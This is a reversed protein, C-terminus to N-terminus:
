EFGDEVSVLGFHNDKGRSSQAHFCNRNVTLSRLSLPVSDHEGRGHQRQKGNSLSDAPKM